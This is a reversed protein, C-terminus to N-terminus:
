YRQVVYRTIGSLSGFCHTRWSVCTIVCVYVVFVVCLALSEIVVQISYRSAQLLVRVDPYCPRQVVCSALECVWFKFVQLGPYRSIGLLSSLVVCWALSSWLRFVQHQCAARGRCWVLPLGASVLRSVSISTHLNAPFCAVSCVKCAVGWEGPYCRDM